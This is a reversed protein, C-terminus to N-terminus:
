ITFITKLIISYIKRLIFFTSKTCGGYIIQLEQNLLM